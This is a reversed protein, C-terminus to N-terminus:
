TIDRTAKKIGLAKKIHKFMYHGVFGGIERLGEEKRWKNEIATLPCVSRTLTVWGIFTCLPFAVWWPELIIIIFFSIANMVVLIFHAAILLRLKFSM